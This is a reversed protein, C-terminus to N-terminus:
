HDIYFKYGFGVMGTFQDETEIVPSDAADGVLRAYRGDLKLLWREGIDFTAGLEVHVDKIGAQADFVGLGAVSRNAQATTVSFYHDMYVDSAYTAGVRAKLKFSQSIQRETEAGFRIQIGTGDGTVPTAGSADFLVSGLRIGGYGGLLLGGDVDGLGVLRKADDEDRDSRYGGVVGFEFPGTQFLRFRIDDIGKVSIRSRAESMLSPTGDSLKPIIIPIAIVDHENSGEYKPKVIVGAGVTLSRSTQDHAAYRGNAHAIVSTSAASAVAM